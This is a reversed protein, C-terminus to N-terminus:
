QRIRQYKKLLIIFLPGGIVATIVGIPIEVPPMIARSILDCIVIFISGALCAAPIVIRHNNGVILRIGHPIILGVFGIIGCASVIAGTILSCIIILIVKITEIDIGLHKAEEEGISIANLDQSFIWGVAISTLVLISVTMLLKIDYIQLNGLLWWIIGHLAQSSSISILFTAIGSLVTGIIVGLLILSHISIAGNARALYVVLMTAILAGIFAILPQVQSSIGCIIALGAGLTSGSSIGLIYPEALPNKLVAQLICGAAALGAGAVIGLLVRMMRLRLIDFNNHSFLETLSLDAPGYSLGIFISAFFGILLLIIVLNNKTV